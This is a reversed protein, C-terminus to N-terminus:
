LRRKIYIVPAIRKVLSAKIELVFPKQPKEPNEDDKPLWGQLAVFKNGGNQNEGVYLKVTALGDTQEVFVIDGPSPAIKPNCFLLHGKEIGAPIMSDGVAVVAFGGEAKAIDPPAVAYMATSEKIGWGKLSCDGLGVVSVIFDREPDMVKEALRGRLDKNEALLQSVKEQLRAHEARLSALEGDGGADTGGRMMPGEGFLLWYPDVGTAACLSAVPEAGPMIEGREYRGLTNKPIGILKAFDPQSMKGRAAKIRAGMEAKTPTTM